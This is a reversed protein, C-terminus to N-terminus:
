RRVSAFQLKLGGDNHGLAQPYAAGTDYAIQAGNFHLLFVFVSGHRTREMCQSIPWNRAKAAMSAIKTGVKRATM